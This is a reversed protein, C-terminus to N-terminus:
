QMGDVLLIDEPQQLADALSIPAGQDQHGVLPLDDGEEFLGDGKELEVLGIL